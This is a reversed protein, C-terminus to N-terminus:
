SPTVPKRVDAHRCCNALARCTHGYSQNVIVTVARCDSGSKFGM